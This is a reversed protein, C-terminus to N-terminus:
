QTGALTQFLGLPLIERQLPSAANPTTASQCGALLTLACLAITGPLMRRDHAFGKMPLHTTLLALDTRCRFNNGFHPLCRAQGHLGFGERSLSAFVPLCPSHAALEDACM